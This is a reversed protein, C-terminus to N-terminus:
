RIKKKFFFTLNKKQTNKKKTNLIVIKKKLKNLIHISLRLLKNKKLLTKSKSNNKFFNKLITKKGITNSIRSIQLINTIIIFNAVNQKIKNKIKIQNTIQRVNKVYKM